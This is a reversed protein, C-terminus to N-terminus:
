IGLFEIPRREYPGGQVGPVESVMATVINM